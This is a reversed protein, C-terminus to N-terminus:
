PRTPQGGRRGLDLPGGTTQSPATVAPASGADCGRIMLPMNDGMSAFLIFDDGDRVIVSGLYVAGVGPVGLALGDGGLPVCM